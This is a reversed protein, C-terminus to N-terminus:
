ISASPGRPGCSCYREGSSPRHRRCRRSTGCTAGTAASGDVAATGLRGFYVWQWCNPCM